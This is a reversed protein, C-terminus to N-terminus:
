LGEPLVTVSSCDMWFLLVVVNDLVILPEPLHMYKVKFIPQMTNITDESLFYVPNIHSFYILFIYIKKKQM